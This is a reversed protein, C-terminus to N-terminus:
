FSSEVAGRRLKESNSCTRDWDLVEESCVMEMVAEPMELMRCIALVREQSRVCM